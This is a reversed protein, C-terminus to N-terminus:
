FPATDEDEEVPAPKAKPKVVSVPAPLNDALSELGDFFIRYDQTGDLKTDTYQSIVATCGAILEQYKVMAGSATPMITLSPDIKDMELRWQKYGYESSLWHKQKAEQGQCPGDLALWTNVIYAKGAKTEKFECSLCMVRHQGGVSLGDHLAVPKGWAANIDFDSM